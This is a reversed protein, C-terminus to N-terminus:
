LRGAAVANDLLMRLGREHFPLISALYARGVANNSKCATAVVASPAAADRSKSISLRFDMHPNDRGVVLETDGLTYITWGGITGGVAHQTKIQPALTESAPTTQLRLSAAAANRAVLLLRLWYPRHAFIAYFIETVTADDRSLPVRHADVHDAGDLFAARLPGDPPVECAVARPRTMGPAKGHAVM